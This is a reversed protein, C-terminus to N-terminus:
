PNDDVVLMFVSKKSHIEPLLERKDKVRHPMKLMEVNLMMLGTVVFTM